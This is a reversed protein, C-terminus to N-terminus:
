QLGINRADQQLDKLDSVPIWSDYRRNYGVWSVLAMQKGRVKKKRWVKSVEFFDQEPDIDIKQLEHGYARGELDKGKSDKLGFMPINQNTSIDKVTFYERTYNGTEEKDFVGKIRSLRVTDGVKPDDRKPLLKDKKEKGYMKLFAARDAEGKNLIDIPKQGTVRSVTTNYHKM